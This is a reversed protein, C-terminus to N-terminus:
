IISKKVTDEDGPLYISDIYCNHWVMGTPREEM